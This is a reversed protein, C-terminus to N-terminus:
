LNVMKLKGFYKKNITGKPNTKGYLWSTITSQSIELISALKRQTLNNKKMIKLLKNVDPSTLREGMKKIKGTGKCRVCSKYQQKEKSM